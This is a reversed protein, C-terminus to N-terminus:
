IERSTDELVEVDPLEPEDTDIDILADKNLNSSVTGNFSVSAATMIAYEKQLSAIKEKMVTQRKDLDVLMQFAFQAEPSLLSVDYTGSEAVYKWDTIDSESM